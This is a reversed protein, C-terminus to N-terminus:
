ITLEMSVERRIALQFFSAVSFEKLPKAALTGCNLATLEALLV